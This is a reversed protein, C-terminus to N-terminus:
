FYAAVRRLGGPRGQAESVGTSWPIRSRQIQVRIDNIEKCGGNRTKEATKAKLTGAQQKVQNWFSM